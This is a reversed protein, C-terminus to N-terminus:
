ACWDNQASSPERTLGDASGLRPETTEEGDDPQSYGQASGVREPKAPWLRKSVQLPKADRKENRLGHKHDQSSNKHDRLLWAGDRHLVRIWAVVHPVQISPREGDLEQNRFRLVCVGLGCLGAGAVSVFVIFGSGAVM